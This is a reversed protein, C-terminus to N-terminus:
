GMPLYCWYECLFQNEEEQEQKVAMSRFPDEGQAKALEDLEKEIRFAEQHQTAQLDYYARFPNDMALFYFVDPKKELAASEAVRGLAVLKKAATEIFERVAAPPWCEKRLGSKVRLAEEAAETAAKRDEDPVTELADNTAQVVEDAERESRVPQGFFFGKEDCGTV